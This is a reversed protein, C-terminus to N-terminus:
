LSPTLPKAVSISNNPALKAVASKAPESAMLARYIDVVAINPQATAMGSFLSLLSIMLLSIIKKVAIKRVKLKNNSLNVWPSNLYRLMMGTKTM